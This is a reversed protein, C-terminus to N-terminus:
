GGTPSEPTRDQQVTTLESQTTVVITTKKKRKGKRSETPYECTLSRRACQSSLPVIVNADDAPKTEPFM